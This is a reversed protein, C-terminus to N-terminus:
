GPRGGSLRLSYRGQTPQLPDNDCQAVELATLEIRGSDSRDPHMAGARKFRHLCVNEVGDLRMLWQFLDSAHLDEGFRLRGREFFGGPATGLADRVARRVESQYCVAAVQVTFAMEVPVPVPDQLWAEQGAMRWADVVLGLVGRASPRADWAPAAIGRQEHFADIADRLADDVLGAAGRAPAAADGPLRLPEDLTVGTWPLMVGVQLTIWSGTWLCRAAARRVLPHAGLRLAYDDTTVMRKQQHVALPGALRAEEMRAPNERWLDELKAVASRGGPQAPPDDKLREAAVADYGVLALLRRVSVPRRATELAAEATVRDLMDSLQDLVAAFAEVLAVELDAPSWRRRDPFRAALEELMAIRITEHDRASWDFDDGARALPAPLAAERSGCDPCGGGFALVPLPREAM